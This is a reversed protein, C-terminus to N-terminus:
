NRAEMREYIEGLVKTSNPGGVHILNSGALGDVVIEADATEIASMSGTLNFLNEAIADIGEIVIQSANSGIMIIVDVNEPM